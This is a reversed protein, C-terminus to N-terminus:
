VIIDMNKGLQLSSISVKTDQRRESGLSTYLIEQKM